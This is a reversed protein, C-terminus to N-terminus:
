FRLLAFSILGITITFFLSRSILATFFAIITAILHHNQLTFLLEGERIFTAQVIITTIVAIPVFSLAKSLWQPLTVKGALAFPLYRPVFTLISMGAILLWESM